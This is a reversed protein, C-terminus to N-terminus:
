VRRGAIDFLELTAPAGSALSFAVALEAGAPNPVLGRLHLEAISPISLWVEGLMREAGNSPVGLRYGYRSGPRVEADEYTVMGSRSCSHTAPISQFRRGPAM